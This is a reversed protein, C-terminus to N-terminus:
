EDKLKTVKFTDKGGSKYKAPEYVEGTEDDIITFGKKYALKMKEEIPKQRETLEKKANEIALWDENHSYDLREGTTFKEIKYGMQSTGGYQYLDNVIYDSCKSKLSKHLDELKKLQAAILLPDTLGEEISNIVSNVIDEVTTNDKIILNNM